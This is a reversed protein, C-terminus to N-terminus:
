CSGRYEEVIRHPFGVLRVKGVWGERAIRHRHPPPPDRPPRGPEGATSWYKDMEYGSFVLCGGSPLVVGCVSWLMCFRIPVRWQRSDMGMEYLGWRVLHNSNGLRKNYGDM